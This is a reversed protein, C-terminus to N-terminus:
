GANRKSRPPTEGFLSTLRSARAPRKMPRLRALFSSATASSRKWTSRPPRSRGSDGTAPRHNCISRTTPRGAILRGGRGTKAFVAMPRARATTNGAQTPRSGKWRRRACAPWDAHEQVWVGERQEQQEKDGKGLISQDSFYEKGSLLMLLTSKNIGEPGELVIINDFKCGPDRPRRCLAIMFKRGIARNLPTDECGCYAILWTDIRKTGDWKGQYEDLQDLVPDYANELAIETIAAFTDAQGCDIQHTNNILSRAASITNDTLLGEQITHSHGGYIVHIRHRFLDYRAKVGLAHLAIVANALSPKPEGSEIYYDRFVVNRKPNQKARQQKAAKLENGIARKGIGSLEKALNKLEEEESPSIDADPVLRAFTAVVEEKAATKMPKRVSNVDHKLAYWAEGHAFSKIWPGGDRRRRAIMARDPRNDEDLPDALTAGEFRAPDAM